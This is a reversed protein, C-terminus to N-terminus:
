GEKSQQKLFNYKPDIDKKAREQKNTVYKEPILGTKLLLDIRKSETCHSYRIIENEKLFEILEAYTPM